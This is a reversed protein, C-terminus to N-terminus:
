SPGPMVSGSPAKPQACARNLAERDGRLGPDLSRILAGILTVYLIKM